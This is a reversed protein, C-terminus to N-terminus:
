PVFSRFFDHFVFDLHVVTFMSLDDLLTSYTLTGIERGSRLTRPQSMDVDVFSQQLNRIELPVDSDEITPDEDDALPAFPNNNLVTGVPPAMM